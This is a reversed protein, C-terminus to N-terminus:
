IYPFSIVQLVGYGLVKCQDFLTGKETETVVVNVWDQLQEESEAGKETETVVVNVWDQLQEESEAIADAYRLKYIVTGGIRFGAMNDIERMIMETNMICILSSLDGLGTKCRTQHVDM